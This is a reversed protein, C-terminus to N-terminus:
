FTTYPDLSQLDREVIRVIYQHVGAGAGALRASAPSACAWSATSPCSGGRPIATCTSGLAKDPSLYGHTLQNPSKAMSTLSKQHFAGFELESDTTHSVIPLVCYLCPVLNVGLNVGPQGWTSVMMVGPQGCSSGLKVGIHGLNVGPQDLKFGTQGGTQGWTSRLNVRPQGWTSGM